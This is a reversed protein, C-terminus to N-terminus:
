PKQEPVDGVADTTEPEFMGSAEYLHESSETVFRGLAVDGSKQALSVMRELIAYCRDYHRKAIDRQDAQLYNVTLGLESKYWGVLDSRAQVEDKDRDACRAFRDSFTSFAYLDGPAHANWAQAVAAFCGAPHRNQLEDAAAPAAAGIFTALTMGALM